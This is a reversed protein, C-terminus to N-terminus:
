HQCLYVNLISFFAAIKYIKTIYILAWNSFQSLHNGPDLTQFGDPLLSHDIRPLMVLGIVIAKLIRFIASFFGM